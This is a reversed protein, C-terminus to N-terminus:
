TVEQVQASEIFKPSTLGRNVRETGYNETLMPVQHMDAVTANLPNIQKNCYNYICLQLRNGDLTGTCIHQWSMRSLKKQKGCVMPEDLFMIIVHVLNCNKKGCRVMHFYTQRLVEFCVFMKACKQQPNYLLFPWCESQSLLFTRM